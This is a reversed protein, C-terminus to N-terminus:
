DVVASAGSAVIVECHSVLFDDSLAILQPLHDCVVLGLLHLLVTETVQLHVHSREHVVVLRIGLLLSELATTGDFTDSRPKLALFTPDPTVQHALTHVVRRSRDDCRIRNKLQILQAHRLADSNIQRPRFVHCLIIQIIHLLQHVISRILPRAGFKDDSWIALLDIKSEFLVSSVRM